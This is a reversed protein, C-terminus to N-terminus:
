KQYEFIKVESKPSTYVLKIYDMKGYWLKGMTTGMFATTYHGGSIYYRVPHTSTSWALINELKENLMSKDMIIYRSRTTDLIKHAQEPDETIFFTAVDGLNSQFPNSVPMRHADALVWHGYDGIVMIGYAHPPYSFGSQNYISYYDMGDAPTNSELWSMAYSWDSSMTARASSSELYDLYISYGAFSVLALILLARGWMGMIGIIRQKKPKESYNKHTRALWNSLYGFSYMFGIAALIAINVGLYYEFRMSGITFLFMVTSWVGIFLFPPNRYKKICIILGIIALFLGTSYVSIARDFNWPTTEAITGIYPNKFVAIIGGMISTMQSPITALFLIAGTGIVLAIIFITIALSQWVTVGKEKFKRQVIYLLGTMAILIAYVIIHAYSISYLSLASATIGSVVLLIASVSFVILNGVPIVLNVDRRVTLEIASFIGVVGTFLLMTAMNVTGLFFLFGSIVAMIVFKRSQLIHPLNGYIPPIETKVMILYTLCFLSSFLIEFIHHDFAGYITRFFYLSPVVAIFFASLLGLKKGSIEKGIQYAVPVMIAAVLPPFWSTFNIIQQQTTIGLLICTTGAVWTMLPGFFVADGKPFATMWDFQPQANPFNRIFLEILRVHYYPDVDIYGLIQPYSLIRLVFALIM